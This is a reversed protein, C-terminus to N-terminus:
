PPPASENLYVAVLIGTPLAMLTAGLVILLPGAFPNALGHKGTALFGSAPTKTILDLNLESWGRRAVSWVVLVLLGVAIAGALWALLEMLRNKVRRRPLGEARLAAKTLNHTSMRHGRPEVRHGSAARCPARGM